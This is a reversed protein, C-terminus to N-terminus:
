RSKSIPKLTVVGVHLLGDRAKLGHGVHEGRGKACADGRPGSLEGLEGLLGHIPCQAGLTVQRCCAPNAHARQNGEISAVIVVLQQHVDPHRSLLKAVVGDAFLNSQPLWGSM